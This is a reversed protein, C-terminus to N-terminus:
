PGSGAMDFFTKIQKGIGTCADNQVRALLPVPVVIGVLYSTGESDVRVRGIEKFTTIDWVIAEYQSENDWSGLGFCGAVGTGITCSISGSSEVTQTEGDVWVMYRINMAKLKGILSPEEFLRQLRKLSKPAVRPEFWPYFADIFDPESVVQLRTNSKIVDGVCDSFDIGTEYHGADRRGLVVLKEGEDLVVIENTARYEDISTTACGTGVAILMVLSILKYVM